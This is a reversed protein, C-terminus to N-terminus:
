LHQSHVRGQQRHGTPHLEEPRRGARGYGHGEGPSPRLDAAVVGLDDGGDVVEPMSAFETKTTASLDDLLGQLDMAEEESMMARLLTFADILHATVKDPPTPTFTRARRPVLFGSSGTGWADPSLVRGEGEGAGDWGTLLDARAIYRCGRKFNAEPRPCTPWRTAGFRGRCGARDAARVFGLNSGWCSRSIPLRDVWDPGSGVPRRTWTVGSGPQDDAVLVAVRV